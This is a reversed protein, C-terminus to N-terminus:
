KIIKKQFSYKGDNETVEFEDLNFMKYYAKHKEAFVTMDM